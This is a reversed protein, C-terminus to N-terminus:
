KKNDIIEVIRSYLLGHASKEAIRTWIKKKEENRKLILYENKQLIENFEIIQIKKYGITKHMLLTENELILYPVKRENYNKFLKIVGIFVFGYQFIVGMSNLFIASLGIVIM